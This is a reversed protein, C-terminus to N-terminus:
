KIIKSLYDDSLAISITNGRPSITPYECLYLSSILEKMEETTMTTKRRIAANLAMARLMNERNDLGPQKMNYKYKEILGEFIDTESGKNLGAPIGNLIVTNKGFESFDFGLKKIEAELEYILQMDAASLEITRPFLLAQTGIGGIDIGKKYREYLVREHALRQDLILLKEDKKTVIYTKNLQFLVDPTFNERKSNVPFLEEQSAVIRFIEPETPVEGLVKEWNKLNRRDKHDVEKSFPNYNPRDTKRFQSIEPIVFDNNSMLDRVPHFTEKDFLDIDPVLSHQGISKRVASQLLTYIFREDEFKVETKTPHINVDIKHPEIEFHLVYLPFRSKEILGDFAGMIAHHFYPNKIFRKNVFIYQEGRTKKSIDPTGIFGSITVIDTDEEVSLLNEAAKVRFLEQTREKLTSPELDYVEKDNNLLKLHLKPKALAVRYFEEFVHKTEVSMSKLFNRRAPINFFLNKVTTQTGSLCSISKQELVQSAEIRLYTGIGDEPRMTKMEVQAVAAISAMAEGRFGYSLISFIDEAKKIKSTAHREWCMRADTDSMGIGNDTVQILTSGGEKIHLTIDTAKADISNELLEKVVSAPRQVVEGAAIQNAVSDPLLNIIDTM